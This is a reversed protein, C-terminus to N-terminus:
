RDVSDYNTLKCHFHTGVRIFEMKLFFLSEHFYHSKDEECEITTIKSLETANYDTGFGIGSYEDFIRQYLEFFILYECNTESVNIFHLPRTKSSIDIFNITFKLSASIRM